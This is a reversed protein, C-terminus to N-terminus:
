FWDYEERTSSVNAHLMEGLGIDAKAWSLAEEVQRWQELESLMRGVARRVAIRQRRERRSNLPAVTKGQTKANHTRLYRILVHLPAGHLQPPLAPAVLPWLDLLLNRAARYARVFWFASVVADVAAIDPKVGAKVMEAFTGRAHDPQRLRAYGNILITYMIVNPKVGGVAAREMVNRADEMRGLATYGEILASYHYVNARIGRSIMIEFARQASEMDLKVLADRRIRLAFTMRDSMVQREVLTEVIPQFPKNVRRQFSDLAIGATPDFNPAVKSLGRTSFRTVHGFRVRQATANWSSTGLLDIERQVLSRLIINLHQVTLSTECAPFNILIEYIQILSRPTMQHVNQLYTLIIQITSADPLCSAQRMIRLVRRLGMLGGEPLIARLLANFVDVNPYVSVAQDLRADLTDTLRGLLHFENRDVSLNHRKCMEYVLLTASGTMNATSYATILATVIEADIQYGTSTMQRFVRFINDLQGKHYALLTLLIKFTRHDPVCSLGPVSSDVSLIKEGNEEDLVGGHDTYSLTFVKLIRLAGTVDGTEIRLKMIGNLIMTDSAGGTGQLVQYAQAEVADNSGLSRYANLVVIYTSEDIEFGSAQMRTLCDRARSLDSNRLHGEVLLHFSRRTPQLHSREFEALSPDLRSYDHVEIYSRLAWNLLRVTWTGTTKRSMATVIRLYRWHSHLALQYAIQEYQNHKLVLGLQHAISLIHLARDPLAAQILEQVLVCTRKANPLMDYEQSLAKLTVLTKDRSMGRVSLQEILSLFAATEM